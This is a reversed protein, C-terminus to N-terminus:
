FNSLQCVSFPQFIYWENSLEKNIVCYDSLGILQLPLELKNVTLNLKWGKLLRVLENLM